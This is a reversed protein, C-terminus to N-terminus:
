LWRSRCAAGIRRRRFLVTTRTCFTPGGLEAFSTCIAYAEPLLTKLTRAFPHTSAQQFIGTDSDFLPCGKLFQSNVIGGSGTAVPGTDAEVRRHLHPRIPSGGARIIRDQNM